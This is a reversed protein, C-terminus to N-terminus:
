IVMSTPLAPRLGYGGVNFLSANEVEDISAMRSTHMDYPFTSVPKGFLDHELANELSLRGRVQHPTSVPERSSLADFCFNSGRYVDAKTRM